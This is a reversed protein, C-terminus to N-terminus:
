VKPIHSDVTIKRKRPKYVDYLWTPGFENRLNHLIHGNGKGAGDIWIRANYWYVMALTERWRNRGHAKAFAELADHESDTLERYQM